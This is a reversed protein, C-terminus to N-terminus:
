QERRCPRAASAEGAIRAHDRREGKSPAVEPGERSSLPVAIAAAGRFVGQEIEFSTRYVTMAALETKRVLSLTRRRAGPKPGL